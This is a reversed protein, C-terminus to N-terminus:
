PDVQNRPSAAGGCKARVARSGGVYTIDGLSQLISMMGGGMGLTSDKSGGHVATYICPDGSPERSPYRVV